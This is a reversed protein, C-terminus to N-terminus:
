DRGQIKYHQLGNECKEWKGGNQFNIRSGVREEGLEWLCAGELGTGVWSVGEGAGVTYHATYM